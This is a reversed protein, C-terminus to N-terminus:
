MEQGAGGAIEGEGGVGTVMEGSCFSVLMAIDCEGGVNVVRGSGM